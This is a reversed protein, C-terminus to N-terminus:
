KESVSTLLEIEFLYPLRKIMESNYSNQTVGLEDLNVEDDSSTVGTTRRSDSTSNSQAVDSESLSSPATGHGSSSPVRSLLDNNIQPEAHRDGHRGVISAIMHTMPLMPPGYLDHRSPPMHKQIGGRSPRRKRTGPGRRQHMHSRMVATDSRHGNSEEDSQLRGRHTEDDSYRSGYPHYHQQLENYFMQEYLAPDALNQIRQSSNNMKALRSYVPTPLRQQQVHESDSSDNSVDRGPAMDDDLYGQNHHLQLHESSSSIIPYSRRKDTQRAHSQQEAVSASLSRIVHDKPNRSPIGQAFLNDQYPGDEPIQSNWVPVRGAVPGSYAQGNPMASYQSNSAGKNSETNSLDTSCGSDSDRDGLYGFHPNTVGNIDLSGTAHERDGMSDLIDESGGRNVMLILWAHYVDRM